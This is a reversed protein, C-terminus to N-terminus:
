IKLMMGLRIFIFFLYLTSRVEVNESKLEEVHFKKLGTENPKAVAVQRKMGGKEGGLSITPRKESPKLTIDALFPNKPLSDTSSENSEIASKKIDALLPNKPLASSSSENQSESSENQTQKIESLFPNKPLSNTRIQAPSVSEKLLKM